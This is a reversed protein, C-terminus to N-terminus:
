SDQVWFQAFVSNKANAVSFYPLLGEQSAWKLALELSTVSWSFSGKDAVAPAFDILSGVWGSNVKVAAAGATTARVRINYQSQSVGTGSGGVAWDAPAPFVASIVEGASSYASSSSYATLATWAAGNWYHYQYVAGGGDAQSVNFGVLSFKESAGAIFGDNNTVTFISTATGALIAATVSVATTTADTWQYFDFINKLNRFVGLDAAGGSMNLLKASVLRLQQDGRPMLVPSKAKNAYASSVTQLVRINM